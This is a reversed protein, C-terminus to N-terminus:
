CFFKSVPALSTFEKRQFYSYINIRLLNKPHKYGISYLKVALLIINCLASILIIAYVVKFYKDFKLLTLINGFMFEYTIVRLAEVM